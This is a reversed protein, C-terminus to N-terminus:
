SAKCPRARSIAARQHQDMPQKGGRMDIPHFIAVRRTQDIGAMAQEHRVQAGM